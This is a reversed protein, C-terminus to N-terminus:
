WVYTEQAEGVFFRQVAKEEGVQNPDNPYVYRSRSEGSKSQIAREQLCRSSVYYKM